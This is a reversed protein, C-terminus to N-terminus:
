SPNKVKAVMANAFEAGFKGGLRFYKLAVVALSSFTGAPVTTDVDMQYSGDVPTLVNGVVPTGNVCDFSIQFTMQPALFVITVVDNEIFEYKTYDPQGSPRRGDPLQEWGGNIVIAMQEGLNATAPEVPALVSFNGSISSDAADALVVDGAKLIVGAPVRITSVLYEPVAVMPYCLRNAM